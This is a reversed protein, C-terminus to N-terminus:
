PRVRFTTREAREGAFLVEVQWIGPKALGGAPALEAWVLKRGRQELKENSAVM